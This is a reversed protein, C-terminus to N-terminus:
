GGGVTEVAGGVVVAGRGAGAMMGGGVGAGRGLAGTAGNSAAPIAAATHPKADEVAVSWAGQLTCYAPSPSPLPTVTSWPTHPNPPSAFSGDPSQYQSFVVVLGAAAPIRATVAVREASAVSPMATSRGGMGDADSNTARPPQKPPDPGEGSEATGEAEAPPPAPAAADDATGRGVIASDGSSSCASSTPAPRTASPSQIRCAHSSSADDFPRRQTAITSQTTSIAAPSPDVFAAAVAPAATPRPSADANAAFKHSM